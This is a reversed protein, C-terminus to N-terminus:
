SQGGTRQDSTLVDASRAADSTRAPPALHLTLSLSVLYLYLYLYQTNSPCYTRIATHLVDTDRDIHAWTSM